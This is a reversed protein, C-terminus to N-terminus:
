LGPEATMIRPGQSSMTLPGAEFAKALLDRLPLDLHKPTANLFVDYGDGGEAIFRTVAVTYVREPDLASGNVEVGALRSGVPASPHVGYRLGSVQLFRGNPQPLRSVSNELAARIQTGKVTVVSLSSDFPLLEMLHRYTVPGSPLSGRIAGANILAIEARTERRALDALLNGLNTERTRIADTEGELRVESSGILRNTEKDLQQLYREILKSMAADAPVNADVPLNRAEAVMITRDHYLLDLRGLTRGQRHTKVFLPGGGALEVRGIAPKPHQPTIVGDFGQTHGGIIIDLTPIARTLAEDEETTQHTIAVIV